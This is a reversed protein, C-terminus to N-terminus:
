KIQNLAGQASQWPSSILTACFGFRSTLLSIAIKYKNIRMNGTIDTIKYCAMSHPHQQEM